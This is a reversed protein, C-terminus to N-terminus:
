GASVSIGSSNIYLSIDKTSDVSKLYLLQAIITCTPADTVENFRLTIRDKLLRSFLDFEKESGGEEKECFSPTLMM